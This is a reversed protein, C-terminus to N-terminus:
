IELTKSYEFYRFSLNENDNMLKRHWHKFSCWELRADNRSSIECEKRLFSVELSVFVTIIYSFSKSCIFLSQFWYNMSDTLCKYRLSLLFSHIFKDPMHQMHQISRLPLHHNLQHSILLVGNQIQCLVNSQVIVIKSFLKVVRHQLHYFYIFFIHGRGDSLVWYM